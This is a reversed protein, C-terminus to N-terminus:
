AFVASYADNSKIDPDYYGALACLSSFGSTSPNDMKRAELSIKQRYSNWIDNYQQRFNEKSDDLLTAIGGDIKDRNDVLYRRHRRYRGLLLGSQKRAATADESADVQRAAGPIAGRYRGDKWIMVFNEIEDEPVDNYDDGPIGRFEGFSDVLRRNYTDNLIELVDSVDFNEPLKFPYKLCERAQYAVSDVYSMKRYMRRKKGSCNKPIQRIPEVDINISDGSTAQLWERSMKSVPVTKDRFFANGLASSVLENEPISRGYKTRLKKLKEPDYIRYNLPRDTFVLDHSHVHWLGSGSGRKIEITSVGARIAGSEGGSYRGLRSRKQGMKRFEKKSKKLTEIRESLSKGDTVTYTLMYAFRRGTSVMEAQKKIQDNYRARRRSQMRDACIPCLTHQKCFNAAAVRMSSEFGKENGSQTERLEIVSACDNLKDIKDIFDSRTLGASSVYEPDLYQLPNKADIASLIRRSQSKLIEIRKIATSM